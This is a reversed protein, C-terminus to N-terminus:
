AAQMRLFVARVGQDLSVPQWDDPLQNRQFTIPKANSVELAFQLYLSRGLAQEVFRIVELASTPKGSGLLYNKGASGQVIKRAVFQGIDDSLVYDRLTDARSYVKLTTGRFGSRIAATVLGIRESGDHFGYVSTPRYISRNAIDSSELRREMKLKAEGYPRRPRPVTQAGVLTIGEFLGGASSFLHFHVPLHQGLSEAFAVVSVFAQHEQELASQEAAFGCRGASWVVDVRSAVGSVRRAIQERQAQQQEPDLWAYPVEEVDFHDAALLGRLVSRGILGLGFLCVWRSAAGQDPNARLILM